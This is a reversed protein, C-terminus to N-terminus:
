ASIGKSLLGLYQESVAGLSLRGGDRYWRSTNNACGLIAFSMIEPECDRISGDAIGEEIMRSVGHVLKRQSKRHFAQTEEDLMNVDIATICRAFPESAGRIIERVCFSVKQLGNEGYEDAESVIREVAAASIKLVESIVENKNSVYHYLAPKSVGLRSAIEALSTAQVGKEGFATAAERLVIQRRGEFDADTEVGIRRAKGRPQVDTMEM